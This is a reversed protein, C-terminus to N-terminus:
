RCPHRARLRFIIRLANKQLIFLHKVRASGQGWVPIRYALHPYIIGYYITLLSRTDLQDSLRRLAFIRSSVVKSIKEVHHGFKLHNDIVLGLYTTTDVADVESEGLVCMLETDQRSNISFQILSTKDTNVVLNNSHFWQQIM